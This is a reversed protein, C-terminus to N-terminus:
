SDSVMCMLVDMREHKQVAEQPLLTKANAEPELCNMDVVIWLFKGQRLDLLHKVFRAISHHLLLFLFVDTYSIPTVYM